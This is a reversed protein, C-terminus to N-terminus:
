RNDRDSGGGSDLPIVLRSGARPTDNLPIACVPQQGRRPLQEAAFLYVYGQDLAETSVSYGFAQRLFLYRSSFFLAQLTPDYHLCLPCNHKLVVLDTPRRLDVSLTAFVGDVPELQERLQTLYREDRAFPPITDLLRFLIESDVEAQRPLHLAAFLEDDNHIMGNHIGLTHGALLPHNNANNRPSGKTPWRAHGLLCTTAPGVDALIHHYLDVHVFESAPMPWKFLRYTGYRQVVAVGTAERGREENCVLMATFLQRIEQWAAASRETPYLLVGALGCM